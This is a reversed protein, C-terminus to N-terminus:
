TTDWPSWCALLWWFTCRYLRCSARCKWGLVYVQGLEVLCWVGKGVEGLMSCPKIPMFSSITTSGNDLFM